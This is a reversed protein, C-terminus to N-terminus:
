YFEYQWTYIKGDWLVDRKTILGTEDFYEVMGPQTRGEPDLYTTITKPEFHPKPKKTPSSNIGDDDDSGFISGNDADLVDSDEYPDCETTTNVLKGDKYVSIDRCRGKYIIKQTIKNNIDFETEEKISGNDDYVSKWTKKNKLKGSEYEEFLQVHKHNDNIYVQKSKEKWKGNARIYVITLKSSDSDIHITKQTTDNQSNLRCEFSNLKQGKNGYKYQTVYTTFGSDSKMIHKEQIENGSKDYTFIQKETMREISDKDYYGYENFRETATTNTSWSAYSYTKDTGVPDRFVRKFCNGSSDFFLIELVFKTHAFKDAVIITQKKVGNNQILERTNPIISCSQATLLFSNMFIFFFLLSAIITKM